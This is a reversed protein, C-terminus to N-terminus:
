WPANVLGRTKRLTRNPTPTAHTPDPPPIDRQPPFSPPVLIRASVTSTSTSLHPLYIIWEMFMFEVNVTDGAVHRELAQSHLTINWIERQQELMGKEKEWERRVWSDPRTLTPLNSYYSTGWTLSLNRYFCISVKSESDQLSYKQCNILFPLINKQALYKCEKSCICLLCYMIRSCLQEMKTKQKTKKEKQGYRARVVWRRTSGLCRWRLDTPSWSNEMWDQHQRDEELCLGVTWLTHLLSSTPHFSYWQPHENCCLLLTSPLPVLYPQQNHKQFKQYNSTLTAISHM